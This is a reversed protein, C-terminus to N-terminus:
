KTVVQVVSDSADPASAPVYVTLDTGEQRFRLKHKDGVVSAMVVRGPFGPIDLQGNSPWDFVHLYVTHGKATSKGFPLSQLPGYTTGYISDGYVKMWQGIAQLREVFEPQITGEPTPGVDLIFNGGKSAVNALDQILEKVSKYNTDNKNYAWTDNITMCTEWLQFDEPAPVVPPASDGDKKLGKLTNAVSKTPIRDPIFQEPTAFDGPVGLRNNVLAAPQLQHVLQLVEEGKYKEQHDLGDFWVVAVPGYGTLLERLQAQLYDLYTAWEPRAPDGHWTDKVPKSTDRYGPHHMDPPSYYFGLPMNAEHAARALMATVDQGYPTQTIKYDTLSTDFMCFGDHHKTTFVMYRMGADQALRVWEQPNFKVPNFQKYLTVYEPETIVWRPNPSMIPWSAEVSALSYPGWHIFMGFKAQRYWFTRAATDTSAPPNATQQASGMRAVGLLLACASVILLCGSKCGQWKM